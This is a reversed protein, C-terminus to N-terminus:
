LYSGLDDLNTAEIMVTQDSISARLNKRLILLFLFLLIKCQVILLLGYSISAGDVTLRVILDRRNLNASLMDAINLHKDIARWNFIRAFIEWIAGVM